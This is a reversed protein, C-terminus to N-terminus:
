KSLRGSRTRKQVAFLLIESKQPQDYFHGWVKQLHLYLAASTKAGRKKPVRELLLDPTQKFSGRISEWMRRMGDYSAPGYNVGKM